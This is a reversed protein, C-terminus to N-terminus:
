FEYVRRDARLGRGPLAPSLLGPCAFRRGPYHDFSFGLGPLPSLFCRCVFSKQRGPARVEQRAQGPAAGGRPEGGTVKEADRWSAQNQSMRTPHSGGSGWRVWFGWRGNWGPTRRLRIRREQSSAAVSEATGSLPSPVVTGSPRSDTRRGPGVQSRCRSGHKLHTGGEGSRSSRFRGPLMKTAAPYRCIQLIAPCASM